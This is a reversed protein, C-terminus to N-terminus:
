LITLDSLANDESKYRSTSCTSHYSSGSAYSRCRTTYASSYAAPPPRYHAEYLTWAYSWNLFSGNANQRLFRTVAQRRKDVAASRVLANRSDLFDQKCARTDGCYHIASSEVAEDGLDFGPFSIEQMARETVEAESAVRARVGAQGNGLLLPLVAALAIVEKM